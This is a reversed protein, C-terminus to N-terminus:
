KKPVFLFWYLGTNPDLRTEMRFTSKEEKQLTSQLKKMELYVKEIRAQDSLSVFGYTAKAVWTNNEFLFKLGPENSPWDTWVSAEDTMWQIKINSTTISFWVPNSNGVAGGYEYVFDPTDEIKIVTAWNEGDSSTFYQTGKISIGLQNYALDQSINLLKQAQKKILPMDVPTSDAPWTSPVGNAQSFLPTTASFIM